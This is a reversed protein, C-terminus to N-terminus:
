GSRRTRDACQVRASYYSILRLEYPVLEAAVIAPSKALLGMLLTTGSRGPATVM